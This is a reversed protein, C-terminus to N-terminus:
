FHLFIKDWCDLYNDYLEDYESNFYPKRKTKFGKLGKLISRTVRKQQFNYDNWINSRLNPKDEELNKHEDQFKKSNFTLMKQLLPRIEVYYNESKIVEQAFYQLSELIQIELLNLKEIKNLPYKFPNNKYKKIITFQNESTKFHKKELLDIECYSKSSAEDSSFNQILKTGLKKIECHSILQLTNLIENQYAVREKFYFNHLLAFNYAKIASNGSASSKFKPIMPFTQLLDSDNNFTDPSFNQFTEWEKIKCIADLDSVLLCVKSMIELMELTIIDKEKEICNENIENFIPNVKGLSNIIEHELNEFVIFDVNNALEAKDKTFICDLVKFKIVEEEWDKNGIDCVIQEDRLSSLEFQLNSISAKMNVKSRREYEQRSIMTTENEVQTLKKEFYEPNALVGESLCLLSLYPFLEVKEPFDTEIVIISQLLINQLNAPIAKNYPNLPNKEATFIIPRKSNEMLSCVGSWFGKDQEFLLDVEEIVILVKKLKEKNEYNFNPYVESSFSSTEIVREEAYQVETPSPVKVNVFDQNRTNSSPQNNDFEGEKTIIIETANKIFNDIQVFEMVTPPSAATLIDIDQADDEFPTSKAENIDYTNKGDIRRKKTNIENVGEELKSTSQPGFFYQNESVSNDVTDNLSRSIGMRHSQTAELQGVLEKLANFNFQLMLISNYKNLCVKGGRKMGANWELIEYGCEKVVTEVITSKGSGSPGILMVFRPYVNVKSKKLIMKKKNNIYDVIDKASIDTYLDEIVDEDDIFNGLPTKGIENNIKVGEMNIIKEHNINKKKGTWGNLYLKLAEAASRSSKGIIHETLTPRYKECLPTLDSVSNKKTSISSKRIKESIRKYAPLAQWDGKSFSEYSNTLFEMWTDHTTYIFKINDKFSDQIQLANSVRVSKCNNVKASYDQNKTLHLFNFKNETFVNCDFRFKSNNKKKKKYTGAYLSNPFNVHYNEKSPFAADKVAIKKRVKCIDFDTTPNPISYDDVVIVHNQQLSAQRELQKKELKTLFFPNKQLSSVPKQQFSPNLNSEEVSGLHFTVSTVPTIPPISKKTKQSNAANPKDKKKKSQYSKKTSSNLNNEKTFKGQKFKLQQNRKCSMSFFPHMKMATVQELIDVDVQNDIANDKGTDSGNEVQHTQPKMANENFFIEYNAKATNENEEYGCSDTKGFAEYQM